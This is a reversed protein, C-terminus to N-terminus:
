VISMIIESIFGPTPYSLLEVIINYIRLQLDASYQLSQFRTDPELDIFIVLSNTLTTIAMM